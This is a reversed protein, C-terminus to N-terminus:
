VTNNQGYSCEPLLCCGECSPQKKCHLKSHEVILAHFENLDEVTTLAHSLKARLERDSIRASGLQRSYWRRLYADIVCVPRRFAYLLIADATEEGVGERRLLAGRLDNTAYANLADIGGAGDVFAALAILRRAKARYFGAPKILMEVKVADARALAIWHLLNNSRLTDIAKAAQNWTTQQVLIAGLMVEFPDQAPWWHQPGYRALLHEFSARLM